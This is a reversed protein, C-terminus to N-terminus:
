GAGRHLYYAFYAPDLNIARDFNTVADGYRNQAMTIAGRLGRFQAEHYLLNLAGNLSSMAADHSAVALLASAEEYAEYARAADTVRQVMLERARLRNNEVRETSTPHSTLWDRPAARSGNEMAVFTEQETVAGQPSCYGADTMLKMGYFDAEREAERSYKLGLLQAGRGAYGIVEQGLASGETGISAIALAGKTLLDRELRKAGHGATAHAIEHALVAAREAENELEIM